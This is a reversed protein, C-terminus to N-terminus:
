AISKQKPQGVHQVWTQEPSVSYLSINGMFHNLTLSLSKLACVANLSIEHRTHGHNGIIGLHLSNQAVKRLYKKKEFATETVILFSHLCPKLPSVFFTSPLFAATVLDKGTSDSLCPSIYFRSGCCCLPPWWSHLACVSTRRGGGWRDNMM